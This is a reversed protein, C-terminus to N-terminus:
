FFYGIRAELWQNYLDDDRVLGYQYELSAIWHTGFKRGIMIDLPVFWDNTELNLTIEPSCNVFWQGPLDINLQRLILGVYSGETIEPIMARAGITPVLQWKGDGFAEGTATPSITWLGLLTRAKM